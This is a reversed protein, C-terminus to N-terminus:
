RYDEEWINWKNYAFRIDDNLSEQLTSTSFFLIQTDEELTKFGNAFGNPIKLICPKKDSLIFKFIEETQMNVAGILATGKPVYVYKQEHNHGHWARIYDRKHNSVQYFRKVDTFSFDNVFRVMGRDDVALGGNMLEPKM